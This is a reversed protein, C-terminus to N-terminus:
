SGHKQKAAKWALSIADDLRPTAKPDNIKREIASFNDDPDDSSGADNNTEATPMAPTQKAAPSQVTQAKAAKSYRYSDELSLGRQLLRVMDDKVEDLDPHKTRFLDLELQAMRRTMAEIAQQSPQEPQAPPAVPAAAPEAPQQVRGKARFHDVVKPALIADNAITDYATAKQALIDYEAQSLTKDSPAAAPPTAAPTPTAAVPAAEVAPDQGLPNTETQQLM